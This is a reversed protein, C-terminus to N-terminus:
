IVFSVHCTSVIPQAHNKFVTGADNYLRILHSCDNAGIYLHVLHQETLDTVQVPRYWWYLTLSLGLGLGDLELTQTGSWWAFHGIDLPITQRTLLPRGKM